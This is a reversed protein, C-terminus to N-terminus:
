TAMCKQTCTIRCRPTSRRSKPTKCCRKITTTSISTDPDRRFWNLNEENTDCAALIVPRPLDGLLHLWRLSASAFERGVPVCGIVGFSVTQKPM